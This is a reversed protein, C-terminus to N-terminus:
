YNERKLLANNKGWLWSKFNKQPHKLLFLWLLYSTNRNYFKKCENLQAKIPWLLQSMRYLIDLLPNWFCFLVVSFKCIPGEYNFVCILARHLTPSQSKSSARIDWKNRIVTFIIELINTNLRFKQVFKDSIELIITLNLYM